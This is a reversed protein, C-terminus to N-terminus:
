AWHQSTFNPVVPKRRWEGRLTQAAGELAAGPSERGQLGASDPHRWDVTEKPPLPPASLIGVERGKPPMLGLEGLHSESCSFVPIRCSSKRLPGVQKAGEQDAERM